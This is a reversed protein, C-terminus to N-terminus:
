VSVAEENKGRNIVAKGMRSIRNNVAERIRNDAARRRQTRTRRNVLERFRRSAAIRSLLPDLFRYDMTPRGLAPADGGASSM